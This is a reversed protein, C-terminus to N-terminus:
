GDDSLGALCPRLNGSQSQQGCGRANLHWEPRQCNLIGDEWQWQAAQNLLQRAEPTLLEKHHTKNM